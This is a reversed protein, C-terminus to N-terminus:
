KPCNECYLSKIDPNELEQIGMKNKSFLECFMNPETSQAKEMIQLYMAESVLEKDYRAIQLFYFLLSSDVEDKIVEPKLIEIALSLQDQHCLYQALFLLQNKDLDAVKVQRKIEDFAKRRKDIEAKEYYYDAAIVLYNLYGKAYDAKSISSSRLSEYGKKWKDLDGVRKVSGAWHRLLALHYNYNIEPNNPNILYLELLATHISNGAFKKKQFKDQAIIQNNILPLTKKIQRQDESIFFNIEQGNAIATEMIQTQIQLAMDINEQEVLFEFLKLREEQSQNPNLSLVGSVSMEIRNMDALAKKLEADNQITKKLYELEQEETMGETELQYFTGKKFKQYPELEKRYEINVYPEQRFYPNLVEHFRKRIYADQLDLALPGTIGDVIVDDLGYSLGRMYLALDQLKNEFESFPFNFYSTDIREETSDLDPSSFLMPFGMWRDNHTELHNFPVTLCHSGRQIVLGNIEFQDEKYFSPLKGLSVKVAGEEKKLNLTNFKGKKAPNLLYGDHISGPFLRNSGTCSFQKRDILDVGIADGGDKVINEIFALNHFEFFVEGNQVVFADSFLQSLSPYKELLEKCNDESFSEIGEHNFQAKTGSPVQYPQNAMVLVIIIENRENELISSGVLLFEPDNLNLAGEEEEKWSQMAAKLVVDPSSAVKKASTEDVKVKSNKAILAINEGAKANLGEFFLIRDILTKKKNQDQEHELKGTKLIYQAQDFAVANLIEDSQFQPLKKNHRHENLMDVLQNEMQEVQFDVQARLGFSLFILLAIFLNKM